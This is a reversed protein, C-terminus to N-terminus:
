GGAFEVGSTLLPLLRLAERRYWLRTVVVVIVVMWGACILLSPLVRRSDGGIWGVRLRCGREGFGLRCRIM